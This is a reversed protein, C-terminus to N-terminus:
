RASDPDRDLRIDRDQPRGLASAASRALRALDERRAPDPVHLGGLELGMALLRVRDPVARFLWPKSRDASGHRRPSALGRAAVPDTRCFIELAAFAALDATCVGSRGFPKVAHAGLHRPNGECAASVLYLQLEPAQHALSRGHPWSSITRVRGGAGPDIWPIAGRRVVRGRLACRRHRRGSKAGERRLRSLAQAARHRRYDACVDVAPQSSDSCAAGLIARGAPRLRDLAGAAASSLDRAYLWLHRFPWACAHFEQFLVAFGRHIRIAALARRRLRVDAPIVSHVPRANRAVSHRRTRFGAVGASEFYVALRHRRDASAQYLRLS